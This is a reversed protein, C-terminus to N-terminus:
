AEDEEPDLVFAQPDYAFWENAGVASVTASGPTDDLNKITWEIELLLDDRRVDPVQDWPVMLQESIQTIEMYDAETPRLIPVQVSATAVAPGTAGNVEVSAPTPAIYVPDKTCGAVILITILGPRKM